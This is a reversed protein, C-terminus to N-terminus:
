MEPHPTRDCHSLPLWPLHLAENYNEAESTHCFQFMQPLGLFLNEVTLRCHTLQLSFFPIFICNQMIDALISHGVWSLGSRTSSEYGATRPLSALSSPELSNYKIVDPNWLNGM